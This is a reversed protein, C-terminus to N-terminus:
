VDEAKIGAQAAPSGAVVQTVLAGGEVKLKTKLDAPVDTSGVGIFPVVQPPAKSALDKLRAELEAIKTDRAKLDAELKSVREGVRADVAKLMAEILKEQRADIAKSVEESLGKKGESVIKKLEDKLGDQATLSGAAAVLFGLAAVLAASRPSHASRMVIM